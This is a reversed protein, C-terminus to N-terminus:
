PKPAAPPLKGRIGILRAKDDETLRFAAPCQAPDLFIKVLDRQWDAPSRRDFQRLLGQIVYPAGDAACGAERLAEARAGDFADEAPRNKNLERWTKALTAAYPLPDDPNLRERIHKLIAERRPGESIAATLEALLARLNDASWDCYHHDRGQPPPNKTELLPDIVRPIGSHRDADAQWACVSDLSAGQLQANDLSAGQLRAGALSAGQLQAGALSAGQLRAFDLSAGQLRAIVLSAGQLQAGYLLAGQLRAGDLSAGQLRASELSAGQLEAGNLSAGQLQAGYLSAGQLRACERALSAQQWDGGEKRSACELRAGRLDARVLQAAQLRAGTLDAKRLDAGILVAGELRRGRLSITERAAVIKAETDFKARDYGVLRPLVLVNAFPSAPRQALDDVGGAVLLKHLSAWRWAHVLKGEPSRTMQRVPVFEITPLANHLWEGPFTAVSFVLVLAALSGAGALATFSRRWKRWDGWAANLAQARAVAPWLLWVLLLDILVACRQWWTIAEDHYPLFQLQFYVLLLVPGIILSISAIAKLMWGMPGHREERPAGLFQVFSNSPLQRRIRTRTDEDTIQAGLETNFDGVKGALLVFHLLVYAHLIIFLLPGLWFFGQLPLDINLFPLKVGREFFLDEHTVAAAAIFLYFLVFLYSLWLTGGSVAADVVATRLSVLDKATDALKKATEPLAPTPAPKRTATDAEGATLPTNSAPEAM